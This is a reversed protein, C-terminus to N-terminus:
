DLKLKKSMFEGIQEGQTVGNEIADLFHIGGYFRSIAAERAAEKFSNFARSPLGFEEEVTDVYAFSEGALKSLIHAVSSSVVSHGSTYEPFPPTQLLPRWERDIQENIYTEPRIRNSDYKEKWCSIFADAMTISVLSHWRVAEAFSLKKQVSAIGTIGMWHGGPSIKKTGFSLHGKQILFFPNCDWFGAILEQEPSLARTSDYVERALAFFQSGEKENYPVPPLPKFQGASDLLFPRLSAWHPEYGEMYGPPTPKWSGPEELPTYRMYGSTKVYGDRAAYKVMRDVISDAYVTSAKIMAEKLRYKKGADTKLQNIHPELLYGSPLLEEGMRLLAYLSAFNVDIPQETKIQSFDPYDNLIGYFSLFNEPPAQQKLIEYSALNAYTYYRAAACPGTVDEIMVDTIKKVHQTYTNADAPFSKKPNNALVQAATFVFLLSVFFFLKKRALANSLSFLKALYSKNNIHKM